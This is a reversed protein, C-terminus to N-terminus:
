GIYDPIQGEVTHLSLHRVVLLAPLGDLHTLINGKCGTM